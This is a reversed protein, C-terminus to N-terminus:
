KNSTFNLRYFPHIESFKYVSNVALKAICTIKEIFPIQKLKM